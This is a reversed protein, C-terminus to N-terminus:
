ESLFKSFDTRFLPDVLRAYYLELQTNNIEYDRYLQDNKINCHIDYGDAHMNIFIQMIKADSLNEFGISFGFLRYVDGVDERPTRVLSIPFSVYNEIATMKIPNEIRFKKREDQEKQSLFRCEADYDLIVYGVIDNFNDPVQKLNNDRLDIKSADVDTFNDPIIQINNYRLDLTGEINFDRLSSLLDCWLYTHIKNIILRYIEYKINWKEHGEVLSMLYEDMRNKAYDETIEKEINYKRIVELNAESTIKRYLMSDLLYESKIIVKEVRRINMEIRLNIINNEKTTPKIIFGLRSYNKLWESFNNRDRLIFSNESVPEKKDTMLLMPSKEANQNNTQM